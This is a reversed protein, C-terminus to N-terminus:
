RDGEEPWVGKGPNILFRMSAEARKCLAGLAWAKVQENDSKSPSKAIDLGKSVVATGDKKKRSAATIAKSAMPQQIYEGSRTRGLTRELLGEKLQNILEPYSTLLTTIDMFKRITYTKEGRLRELCKANNRQNYIFGLTAGGIAKNSDRTVLTSRNRLEPLHVKLAANRLQQYAVTKLMKEAWHLQEWKCNKM